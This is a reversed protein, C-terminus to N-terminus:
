DAQGAHRLGVTTSWVHGSTGLQRARHGWVRCGSDGVRFLAAASPPLRLQAPLQGPLRHMESAKHEVCPRLDWAAQGSSGLGWVRFGRGESRSPPQARPALALQAHLQGPYQHMEPPKPDLTKAKHEVCPRRLPCSSGESRSRSSGSAALQSTGIRSLDIDDHGAACQQDGGSGQGRHWDSTINSHLQARPALM